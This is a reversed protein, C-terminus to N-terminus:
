NWRMREKESFLHSERWIAVHHLRMEREGAKRATKVHMDLCFACGNLQSSRIKIIEKMFIDISLDGLANEVKLMENFIKAGVM